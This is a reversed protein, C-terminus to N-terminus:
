RRNVILISGAVVLMGALLRWEFTENMIVVGWFLGLPPLLYNLMSARAAGWQEVVFFYLSYALGTGFVGLWFIALWTTLHTPVKLDGGGKYLAVAGIMLMSGTMLLCTQGAPNVERLWRRTFVTSIGYSVAGGVVALQGWFAGSFNLVNPNNSFLILLGVFGGLIGLVKPM